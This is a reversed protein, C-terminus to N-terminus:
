KTKVTKYKSWGSYYTVNGVKKYTRVKVYYKKKAKLKKVTKSTSKYSKITVTKKGKTFKSNTAYQIQYGSAQSSVKKWSVKFSKKGKTVKSISTSKPNITFTKTITGTYDGTGSITVTAKGVNTNNKYGVTYDAKAQLTKGNVKVTPVPKQAKGTYSKTTIGSVTAGAISTKVVPEEPKAEEGSGGTVESLKKEAEEARKEAEEKEKTLKAIQEEATQKDKEAQTLKAEADEKAKEVEKLEAEAAAKAEKAEALAKEAEAKAQANAEAGAEAEAQAKKAAELDAEAQTLKAKANEEQLEAAEKAKVAAQANAEAAKQAAQAAEVQAQATEKAAKEVAAQAEAAEKDTKTKELEKELEKQATEAKAAKAEAETQAAKATDAEAEATAQAAKAATVEAEAAERALAEEEAKTEAKELAEKSAKLEAEAKKQAEVAEALTKEAEALKSEATETIEFYVTTSGKFNGSGTITVEATGKKTNNAYSVEYDRGEELKKENFTIQLEPKIEEGTVVQDAIEAINAQIISTANITFEKEQEGIYAGKGKIVAKATGANINNEYSVEFDEGEKLGEITVVPECANGDYNFSTRSLKAELGAVDVSAESNVEIKANELSIEDYEENYTKEPAYYVSIPYMGEEAEENFHLTMSMLKGSKQSQEEGYWTTDWGDESAASVTRGTALVDGPTIVPDGYEDADVYFTEDDASVLIGCGLLGSNEELSVSVEVDKGAAGKVEVTKLEEWEDSVASSNTENVEPVIEFYTTATESINKGEVYAVAMVLTDEKLTVPESYETMSVNGACEGTTIQEQINEATPENGDTTYFIRAGEEESEIEIGRIIDESETVDLEVARIVPADVTEGYSLVPRIDVDETVKWWNTETSWSVFEGGKLEGTYEPPEASKGYEVTQTNIIGGDIDLFRVTYEKAEYVAEIIMNGSVSIEEGANVITGDPLKWGKFTYGDNENNGEPATLVAETLAMDQSISQNMWDVFVVSNKLPVYIAKIERDETVNTTRDSWGVFYYGERAISIYGENKQEETLESDVAKPIVADAGNEVKQEEGLQKETGANDTYYFRVTHKAKPAEIKDITILGTSGPISLTVIYNGTDVSPQESCIFKFDYSNGSGIKTHGVYQMQYKNPDTNNAQYVMITAVKGELNDSISTLAGTCHKTLEGKPDLNNERGAAEEQTILDRYKYTYTTEGLQRDSTATVPASSTKWEGWKWFTNQTKVTKTRYVHNEFKDSGSKWFYTVNVKTSASSFSKAYKGNYYICYRNADGSEITKAFKYSGDNATSANPSYATKTYVVVTNDTKGGCYPCEGSKSKWCRKNCDCYYSFWRHVEKTERTVTTKYTAGETASVSPVSSQWNGYKTSITATSEKTYGALSDYGNKVREKERYKYTPIEVIERGEKAEPKTTSTQYDGYYPVGSERVVNCSAPEALASGTSMDKRCEVVAAEVSSPEFTQEAGTNEEDSGIPMKIRVTTESPDDSRGADLYSIKRDVYVTRELEPDNADKAKLATVLYFSLDKEKETTLKVEANVYRGDSSVKASTVEAIVPLESDKWVSVAHIEMDSDVKTIDQASDGESTSTIQWGAFVYGEELTVNLGETDVAEGHNVKQTEILKGTTDYLNVEYRNAEYQAEFTVDNTITKKVYGNTSVTDSEIDKWGVFSYGKKSPSAVAECYEGYTVKQESLVKDADEETEKQDIFRVTVPDKGRIEIAESEESSGIKNSATVTVYYDGAKPVTFTATAKETTVSEVEEENSADYLVAKYSEALSDEEWNVTVTKGTAINSDGGAIKVEPKKPETYETTYTAVDSKLFGKQVTYATITTNGEVEFPKVYDKYTKGGDTSYKAKGKCNITAIGTKGNQEVTITPTEAKTLTFTKKVNASRKSGVYVFAKITTTGENLTIKATKGKVLINKGGNKSYYITADSYKTKIAIDKGNSTPTETLTPVSVDDYIVIKGTKTASKGSIDTATFKYNYTGSEFKSIDFGTAKQLTINSLYLSEYTQRYEKSGIKVTINRIPYNSNVTASFTAKAKRKASYEDKANNIAITSNAKEPTYKTIKSSPVYGTVNNYKVKYWSGKSLTGLVQVHRGEPFTDYRNAGTSPYKYVSTSESIKYFRKDKYSTKAGTSLKAGDIDIYAAGCSCKGTKQDVKSHSCADAYNPRVYGMIYSDTLKYKKTDVYGSGGSDVSTNGEITYVYGNESKDVIGVHQSNGYFILDGTKPVITGRSYYKGKFYKPSATTAYPVINDSINAKRACWSIFVACWEYDYKFYDGYATRVIDRGKKSSSYRSYEGQGKQTKAVGVIDKAPNGTNSYTIPKAKKYEVSTAAYTYGENNISENILPFITAVLFVATIVAITKTAIAKLMM